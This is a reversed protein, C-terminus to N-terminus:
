FDLRIKVGYFHLMTDKRKEYKLRLESLYSPDYCMILSLDRM